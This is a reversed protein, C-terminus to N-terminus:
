AFSEQWLRTGPRRLPEGAGQAFPQEAAQIMEPFVLVAVGERQHGQGQVPWAHLARVALWSLGVVLRLRLREMEVVREVAGCHGLWRRRAVEAGLAGGAEGEFGVGIPVLLGDVELLLQHLAHVTQFVESVARVQVPVQGRYVGFLSPVGARGTGLSKAGLLVQRCM